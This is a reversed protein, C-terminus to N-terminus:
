YPRPNNIPDYEYANEARDQMVEGVDAFIDGGNMVDHDCDWCLKFDVIEGFDNKAAADYLKDTEAGCRTCNM